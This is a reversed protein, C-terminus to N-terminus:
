RRSGITYGASSRSAVVRERLLAEEQLSCWWLAATIRPRRLTLEMVSERAVRAITVSTIAAISHDMRKLLFVHLGNLDGPLLFTMIQRRGDPLIRYRCALGEPMFPM